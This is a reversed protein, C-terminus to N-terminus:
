EGSKGRSEEELGTGEGVEALQDLQVEGATLDGGNGRAGVQPDVAELTEVELVVAETGEISRLADQWVAEM